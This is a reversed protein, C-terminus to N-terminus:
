ECIILKQSGFQLYMIKNQKLLKSIYAKSQGRKKAVDSVTMPNYKNVLIDLMELEIDMSFRNGNIVKKFREITNEPTEM